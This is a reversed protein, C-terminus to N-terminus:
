ILGNFQYSNLTSFEPVKIKYHGEMDTMVGFGPMNKVIINAGILPEKNADTVIGTVEIQQEQAHSVNIIGLVLFLLVVVKKM